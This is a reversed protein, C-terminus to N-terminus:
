GLNSPKVPPTNVAAPDSGIAELASVNWSEAHRVIQLLFIVRPMIADEFSHAIGELKIVELFEDYEITYALPLIVQSGFGGVRSGPLSCPGVKVAAISYADISNNAWKSGHERLFCLLIAPPLNLYTRFLQLHHDKVVLTPHSNWMWTM